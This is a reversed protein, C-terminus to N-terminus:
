DGGTMVRRRELECPALKPVSRVHTNGSCASAAMEDNTFWEAFGVSHYRLAVGIEWDM